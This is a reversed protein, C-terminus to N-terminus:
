AMLLRTMPPPVLSVTFCLVSVVQLPLSLLAKFLTSFLGASLPSYRHRCVTLHAAVGHNDAGGMTCNAHHVLSGAISEM